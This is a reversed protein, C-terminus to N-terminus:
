YTLEIMAIKYGYLICKDEQQTVQPQNYALFQKVLSNLFMGMKNHM